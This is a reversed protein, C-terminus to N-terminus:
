HEYVLKEKSIRKPLSDSLSDRQVYDVNFRRRPFMSLIRQNARNYCIANADVVCWCSELFLCVDEDQGESDSASATKREQDTLERQQLM